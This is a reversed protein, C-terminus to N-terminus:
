FMKLFRVLQDLIRFDLINEIIKEKFSLFVFFSLGDKNLGASYIEYGM